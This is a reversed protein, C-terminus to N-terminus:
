QADERREVPVPGSGWPSYVDVTPEADPRLEDIHIGCRRCRKQDTPSAVHGPCAEELLARGAATITASGSKYPEVVDLLGKDGLSMITNTAFGSAGNNAWGHRRRTLPAHAAAVLAAHQKQPLKM